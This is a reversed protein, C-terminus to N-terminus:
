NKRLQSQQRLHREVAPQNLSQSRRSQILASGKAIVTYCIKEMESYFKKSGTLVDSVFYVPFQPKATKIKHTIEKVVVLAGSAV